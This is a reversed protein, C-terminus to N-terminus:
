MCAQQESEQPIHRSYEFTLVAHDSRFRDELNINLKSMCPLIEEAIWVLDLVRPRVAPNNSQWTVCNKSNILSMQMESQLAYIIAEADGNANARSRTLEEDWM